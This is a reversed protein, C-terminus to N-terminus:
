DQWRGPSIAGIDNRVYLSTRGQAFALPADVFAAIERPMGYGVPHQEDVYVRLLSGPINFDSASVSSRGPAASIANRVPLNFDEGILLESSHALAILAGGKEVFDKLSRIGEKGIGGTYEPPLEEFYGERGPRGEVVAPPIPLRHGAFVYGHLLKAPPFQM